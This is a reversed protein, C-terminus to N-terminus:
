EVYNEKYYEKMTDRSIKKKLVTGNETAELWPRERHTKERLGWASYQGFIEYVQNLLNEDTPTIKKISEKDKNEDFPLNYPDRCYQQYVEVVVPGHEWAIIDEDFLSGNGVALSCGEAYYLLKLLKLLTINDGDGQEKERLSKYLFWKAIDVAKYKAM